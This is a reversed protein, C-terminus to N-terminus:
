GEVRIIRDELGAKIAMDHVMQTGKNKQGELFCTVVYDPILDIMEQNRKALAWAAPKEAPHAQVDWDAGDAWSAAILDAGGLYCAGHHLEMPSWHWDMEHAKELKRLANWILHAKEPPWYRSGSFVVLTM